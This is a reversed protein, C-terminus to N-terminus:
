IDTDGFCLEEVHQMLSEIVCRHYPCWPQAKLIKEIEDPSYSMRPVAKFFWEDDCKDSRWVYWMLKDESSELKVGDQLVWETKNELTWQKKIKWNAVQIEYIKQALLFSESRCFRRRFRHRLRSACIDATYRIGNATDTIARFWAKMNM